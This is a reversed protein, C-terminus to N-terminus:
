RAHNSADVRDRVLASRKNGWSWLPWVQPGSPRTRRLLRTGDAGMPYIGTGGSRASSFLIRQGAGATLMPPGAPVSAAPLSEDADTDPAMPSEANNCAAVALSLALVAAKIVAPQSQRAM